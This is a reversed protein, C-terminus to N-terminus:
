KCASHRLHRLSLREPEARYGISGVPSSELFTSRTYMRLPRAIGALAAPRRSICYKVAQKPCRNIVIRLEQESSRTAHREQTNIELGTDAVIARVHSCNNRQSPWALSARTGIASGWKYTPMDPDRHGFSNPM